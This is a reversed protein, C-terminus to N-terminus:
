SKLYAPILACLAASTNPLPLWVYAMTVEYRSLATWTSHSSGRAGPARGGGGGGGTRRIGVTVPTVDGSASPRYVAPSPMRMATANVRFTVTVAGIWSRSLASLVAAAAYAEPLPM